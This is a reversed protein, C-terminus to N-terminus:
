ADAVIQAALLMRGTQTLHFVGREVDVARIGIEGFEKAAIRRCISCWQEYVAQNKQTIRISTKEKHTVEHFINPREQDRLKLLQIDLVVYNTPDLFMRVKSVFSLGSFQPLQLKAIERVGSRHLERLTKGARSLKDVTAKTRFDTIRNWRYGTRAYGWYLVNSFGDRISEPKEALLQESIRAEVDRMSQHQIEKNEIFDYTVFPFDYDEIAQLLVTRLDDSLAM